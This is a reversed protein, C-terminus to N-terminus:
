REVGRGVSSETLTRGAEVSNLIHEADPDANAQFRALLRMGAEVAAAADIPRGSEQM